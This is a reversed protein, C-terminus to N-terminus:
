YWLTVYHTPIKSKLQFRSETESVLHKLAWELQSRVGVESPKVCYMFPVNVCPPLACSVVQCVSVLWCSSSYVSNAEVPWLSDERVWHLRFSVRWWLACTLLITCWVWNQWLEIKCWFVAGKYVLPFISAYLICRYGCFSLAPLRTIEMAGGGGWISGDWWHLARIRISKPHHHLQYIWRSLARRNLKELTSCVYHWELEEHNTFNM